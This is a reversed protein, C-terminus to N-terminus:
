PVPACSSASSTSGEEAVGAPDRRPLEGVGDVRAVDAAREVQEVAHEALAPAVRELEQGGQVAVVGADQTEVAGVHRAVLVGGTEEAQLPEVKGARLASAVARRSPWSRTASAM